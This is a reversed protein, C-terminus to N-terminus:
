TRLSAAIIEGFFQRRNQINRSAQGAVFKSGMLSCCCWNKGAM